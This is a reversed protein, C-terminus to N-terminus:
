RPRTGGVAKAAEVWAEREALSMKSSEPAKVAGPGHAELVRWYNVFALEGLWDNMPAIKQLEM